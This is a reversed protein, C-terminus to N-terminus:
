EGWVSDDGLKLLNGRGVEFERAFRKVAVLRHNAARAHRLFCRLAGLGFKVGRNYGDTLLPNFKSLRRMATAQLSAKCGLTDLRARRAADMYLRRTARHLSLTSPISLM